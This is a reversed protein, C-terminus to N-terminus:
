LGRSQCLTPFVCSVLLDDILCVFCCLLIFIFSVSCQNMLTSRKTDLGFLVPLQKTCFLRGLKFAALGGNADARSQARVCSCVCLCVWVCVQTCVGVRV